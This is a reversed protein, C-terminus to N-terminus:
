PRLMVLRVQASDAGGPVVDLRVIVDDGNVEASCLTANGTRAVFFCVLPYEDNLAADIVTQEDEDHAFDVDHTFIVLSNQGVGSVRGTATNWIPQDNFDYLGTQDAFVQGNSWLYGHGAEDFDVQVEDFNTRRPM